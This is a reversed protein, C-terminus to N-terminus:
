SAPDALFQRERHSRLVLRMSYVIPLIGAASVTIIVVAQSASHVNAQDILAYLGTGFAGVQPAVLLLVHGRLRHGIALVSSRDLSASHDWQPARSLREVFPQLEM